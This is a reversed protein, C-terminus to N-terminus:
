GQFRDGVDIFPVDHEIVTLGWLGIAMVDVVGEYEYGLALL